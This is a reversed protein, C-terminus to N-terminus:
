VRLGWTCQFAMIYLQLVGEFLGGESLSEDRRKPSYYKRDVVLASLFLSENALFVMTVYMYLLRGDRRTRFLRSQCSLICFRFWGHVWYGVCSLDSYKTNFVKWLAPSVDWCLVCNCGGERYRRMWVKQRVMEWGQYLWKSSLGNSRM